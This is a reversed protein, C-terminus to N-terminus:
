RRAAIVSIKPWQLGLNDGSPFCFGSSLIDVRASLNMYRYVREPMPSNKGRLQPWNEYAQSNGKSGPSPRPLQVKPRRSGQQGNEAQLSQYGQTQLVQALTERSDADDDVILVTRKDLLPANVNNNNVM